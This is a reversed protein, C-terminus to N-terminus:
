WKQQHFSAMMRMKEREREEGSEKGQKRDERGRRRERKRGGERGGEEEEVKGIHLKRTKIRNPISQTGSKM